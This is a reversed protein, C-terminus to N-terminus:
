QPQLLYANVATDKGKLRLGPRPVVPADDPLRHRTSEGILVGGVPAEEQLRAAV